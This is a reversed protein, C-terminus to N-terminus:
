WWPGTCGSCRRARSCSDYTDFGAHDVVVKVAPVGREVLWRRMAGPEDYSFRGHDGSVLV